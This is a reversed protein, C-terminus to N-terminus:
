PAHWTAWMAINDLTVTGPVPTTIATWTVQLTITDNATFLNGVTGSTEYEDIATNLTVSPIRDTGTHVLRFTIYGDNGGTSAVTCAAGFTWWGDWPITIVTPLLPDFMGLPDTDATDFQVDLAVSETVAQAAAAWSVRVYPANSWILDCNTASNKFLSQNLTGGDPVGCVAAAPVTVLQCAGAGDIVVAKDTLVIDRGPDNIDALGNCVDATIVYPVTGSGVGTVGIVTDGSVVACMCESACTTCAM